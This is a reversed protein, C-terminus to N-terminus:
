LHARLGLRLGLTGVSRLVSAARCFRSHRALLPRMADELTAIYDRPALSADKGVLGDGVGALL